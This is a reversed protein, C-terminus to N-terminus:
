RSAVIEYAGPEDIAGASLPILRMRVEYAGIGRRYHGAGAWETVMAWLTPDDVTRGVRGSLYGPAAALAELIAGLEAAFSESDEEPVRYRTIAIM